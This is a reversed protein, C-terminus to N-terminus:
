KPLPKSQAGQLIACISNISTVLHTLQGETIRPDNSATRIIRNLHGLEM